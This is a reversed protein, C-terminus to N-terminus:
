FPYNEKKKSWANYKLAYDNSIIHKTMTIRRYSHQHLLQIHPRRWVCLYGPEHTDIHLQETLYSPIVSHCVPTFLPTLSLPIGGLAKSKTKRVEVAGDTFILYRKMSVLSTQNVKLSFVISLIISFCDARQKGILSVGSSTRRMALKQREQM